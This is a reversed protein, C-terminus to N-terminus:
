ILRISRSPSTRAKTISRLAKALKASKRPIPRSPSIIARRRGNEGFEGQRQDHNPRPAGGGSTGRAASCNAGQNRESDGPSLQSLQRRCTKFYDLITFGKDDSLTFAAQNEGFRIELDGKEGLLRTLENVTKTPIIFEGQSNEPIDVEEDVLRLAAAM